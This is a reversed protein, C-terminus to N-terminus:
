CGAELDATAEDLALLLEHQLAAIMGIHEYANVCPSIRVWFGGSQKKGILMVETLGLDAAECLINQINDRKFLQTVQAAM